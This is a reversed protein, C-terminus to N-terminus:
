DLPNLWAFDGFTEKAARNYAIAAEKEVSFRGLNKLKRFIRISAKWKGSEVDWSVGKYKSSTKTGQYHQPKKRNCCNQLHTCFRLNERRNDFVDGNIHDVQQGQSANLVQKHLWVVPKLTGGSRYIYPCRGGKSAWRHKVLTEFDEDSVTAIKGKTTILAKM